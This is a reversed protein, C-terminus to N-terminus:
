HSNKTWEQWQIVALVGPNPLHTLSSPFHPPTLRYSHQTAVYMISVNVHTMLM